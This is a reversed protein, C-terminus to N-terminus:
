DDVRHVAYLNKTCVYICSHKNNIKTIPRTNVTTQSPYSCYYPFRDSLSRRNMDVHGPHPLLAEVQSRPSFEAEWRTFNALNINTSKADTMLARSNATKKRNKKSWEDRKKKLCSVLIVLPTLIQAVHRLTGRFRSVAHPSSLYFSSDYSQLNTSRIGKIKPHWERKRVHQTCFLSKVRRHLSAIAHATLLQCFM